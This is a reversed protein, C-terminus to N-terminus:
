VEGRMTDLMELSLRMSLLLYEKLEEQTVPEAQETETEGREAEAFEGNEYKKGILEADCEDLRVLLPSEVEGTLQSVGVCIGNEDLQAYNFM